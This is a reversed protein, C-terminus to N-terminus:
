LLSAQAASVTNALLMAITMPGVGGPVPTIAGARLSAAAFDVDGCLGGEPLRNIGVDLVTAGPKIWDGPVFKPRGIAAVVIDAQRVLEPLDPTKSHAITVTADAKLLMLAIPKGVINSRGLVVARKGAVSIKYYALLRMMGAPTCPELSKQGATLRGVNYPHFGDVDKAPDIAELIAEARIGAPLPLQVLIGHVRKDDNLTKILDLLAAQSISAEVSHHFSTIGCAECSRVKNKIYVQSAPDAGVLVTALGPVCGAQALKNVAVKVEAKVAEAVLKGDIIVTM